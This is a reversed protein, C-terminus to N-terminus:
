AFLCTGIPGGLEIRGESICMLEMASQLPIMQTGSCM